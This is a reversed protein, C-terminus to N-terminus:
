LLQWDFDCHQLLTLIYFEFIPQFLQFRWQLVIMWFRKKKKFLNEFKNEFEQLPKEKM